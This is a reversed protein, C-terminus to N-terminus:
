DIPYLESIFDAVHGSGLQVTLERLTTDITVTLFDDSKTFGLAVTPDAIDEGDVMLYDGDPWIYALSKVVPVSSM